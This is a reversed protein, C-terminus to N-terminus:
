QVALSGSVALQGSLSGKLAASAAKLAAITPATVQVADGVVKAFAVADNYVTFHMVLPGSILYYDASATTPSSEVAPTVYALIMKDETAKPFTPGPAPRPVPTPPPAPAPIPDVGPWYDAFVSLDYGPTNGYQHGIAGPPITQQGNWAAIWWHPQAVGASRFAAQGNGWQDLDTYVTPDVGSRRRMQVWGVVQPWTANDPPGDFVLGANTTPYVAIPVVLSRPFRQKLAYYSQYQGDIYGLYIDMGAPAAAANVVDAGHRM